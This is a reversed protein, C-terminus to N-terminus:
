TKVAPSEGCVIGYEDVVDLCCTLEDCDLWVNRGCEADVDSGGLARVGDDRRVPSFFNVHDLFHRGRAGNVGERSWGSVVGM